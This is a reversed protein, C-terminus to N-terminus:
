HHADLRIRRSTGTRHDQDVSPVRVRYTGDRRVRIRRAYKSCVGGTDRLTTRAVTRYSGTSTRRQIYAIKGDHDPCATGAFRVRTGARPTRDSVRRTVRIRVGVLAPASTAAPSTRAIVRYRTNLKPQQVFSYDGAANTASNAITTFGNDAFPHPDAQLDVPVGANGSGTVKGTITTSRGWTITTPTAAISVNNGGGGGGGGGPNHDPRHDASAVAPLAAALALGAILGRTKNSTWTM